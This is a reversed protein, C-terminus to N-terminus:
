SLGAAKWERDPQAFADRVIGSARVQRALGVAEAQTMAGGVTVAFSRSLKTRYIQVPSTINAASLRAALSRSLSLAAEPSDLPVTAIVAFWNANAKPAEASELTAAAVNTRQALPSNAYNAPASVAERETTKRDQETIPVPPLHKCATAVITVQANAADNCYANMIRVRAVGGRSSLDDPMGTVFFGYTARADERTERQKALERQLKEANAAEVRAQELDKRQYHNYTLGAAAVVLAIVTKSALDVADNVTQPWTLGRLYRRFRGM